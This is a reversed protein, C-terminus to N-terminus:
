LAVARVTLTPLELPMEFESSPIRLSFLIQTREDDTLEKKKDAFFRKRRVPKM